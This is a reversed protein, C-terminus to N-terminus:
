CILDRTVADAVALGGRTLKVIGNDSTIEVLRKAALREARELFKDRSKKGFRNELEVVDIGKKMRLRLMIFEDFQADRDLIEKEYFVGGNSQTNYHSIYRRLDSPNWSRCSGGDFSHAAPGLGLYPVGTWYCTNHLSEEGKRAYNSIEYHDFGHSTLVNDVKYMMELALEEDDRIRGQRLWASLVSKEEYALTYASIHGVGSDLAIQLSMEVSQLTQGPVGTIIDLSVKQFNQVLMNVAKIAQRSDHRRGMLKLESDIFSQIGISIRNVGADRWRMINDDSVDEPNVEITFEDVSFRGSFQRRIEETINIILHPPLASPTGGGYYLTRLPLTSFSKDDNLRVELERCVAKAYEKQVSRVFNGSYFGCYNCRRACFPFHVYLGMSSDSVVPKVEAYKVNEFQM